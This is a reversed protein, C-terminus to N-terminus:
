TVPVKLYQSRCRVQARQYELDLSRPHLQGAGPQEIRIPRARVTRRRQDSRRDDHLPQSRRDLVDRRGVKGNKEFTRAIWLLLRFM